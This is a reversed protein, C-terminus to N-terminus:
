RFEQCLNKHDNSRSQIGSVFSNDYFLLDRYSVNQEKPFANRKM